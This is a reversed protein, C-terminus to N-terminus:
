PSNGNNRIDLIADISGKSLDKNMDTTSQGTILNVMKVKKLAKYVINTTDCTKAVGVDVSVGSGGINAFVVIFILPFVLSFVVASPSRIISRFSAIAIALTARTNNYKKM